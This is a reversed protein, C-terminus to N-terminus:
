NISIIVGFSLDSQSVTTGLSKSAAPGWGKNTIRHLTCALETEVFHELVKITVQHTFFSWVIVHSTKVKNGRGRSFEKSINSEAWHFGDLDSDLGWVISWGETFTEWFHLGFFSSSCEELSQFWKPHSLDWVCHHLESAEFFSNNGKVFINNWLWTVLAGLHTINLTLFALFYVKWKFRIQFKEILYTPENRFFYKEHFIQQGSPPTLDFNRDNWTRLLTLNQRSLLKM